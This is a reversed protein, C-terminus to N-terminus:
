REPKKQGGGPSAANVTVRVVRRLGSAGVLGCLTSGPSVARIEAGAKGIEVTAIRPDDCISTQVPCSALGATCVNVRDGVSMELPKPGEALAAPSGLALVALVAAVRM